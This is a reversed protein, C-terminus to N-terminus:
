AEIMLSEQETCRGTKSKAAKQIGDLHLKSYATANPKNLNAYFSYAIKTECDLARWLAENSACM